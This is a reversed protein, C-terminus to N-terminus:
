AGGARLRKCQTDLWGPATIGFLLCDERGSARRFAALALATLAPRARGLLPLLSSRLWGNRNDPEGALFPATFNGVDAGDTWTLERQGNTTM